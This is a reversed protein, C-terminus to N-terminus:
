WPKFTLGVLVLNSILRFRDNEAPFRQINGQTTIETFLHSVGLKAAWRQSFWYRIYLESNLSGIDNVDILLMNFNSQTGSTPLGLMSEKVISYYGRNKLGFGFGVVDINFGLDIKEFFTYQLIIYTNLFAIAPDYVSIYDLNEPIVKKFLVAPGTTNKVIKAPASSYAHKENGFFTTFRLGYGLKLKKNKSIPHLHHWNINLAYKNKAFTVNAEFYNASKYQAVVQNLSVLFVCILALNKM